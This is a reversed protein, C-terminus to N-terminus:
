TLVVFLLMNFLLYFAQWRACHVLWRLTILTDARTEKYLFPTRQLMTQSFKTSDLRAKM